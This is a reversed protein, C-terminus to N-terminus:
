KRLRLNIASQRRKSVLSDAEIEDCQAKFRIFTVLLFQDLAFHCAASQLTLWRDMAVLSVAYRLQLIAEM